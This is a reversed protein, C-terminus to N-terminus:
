GPHEKRPWVFFLGPPSLQIDPLYGRYDKEIFQRMGSNLAEMVEPDNLHAEVLNWDGKFNFMTVNDMIIGGELSFNNNPNINDIAPSNSNIENNM